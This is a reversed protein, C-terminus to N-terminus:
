SAAMYERSQGKHFGCAQVEELGRLDRGSRSNCQATTGLSAIYHIWFSPVFLVDGPTLLVETGTMDAFDPHAELDPNAWNVASHRASPDGTPRLYAHQCEQPPAMIWRRTGGVAVVFNRHGDYHAEAVVGEMGFRCHIGRANQQDERHFLDPSDAGFVTMDEAVMAHDPDSVRFYYHPMGRRAEVPTTGDTSATEAVAALRSAIADRWRTYSWQETHTPPEYGAERLEAAQRKGGLSWYLFHNTKSVEVRMESGGLKGQLYGPTNWKGVAADVAPVNYLVFPVQAESYRAAKARDAADAYDFRCLSAYHRAPVAADDPNWNRVMDVVRYETPYEPEEPCHPPGFARSGTREYVYAEQTARLRASAAVAGRTAATAAELAQTRADLYTETALKMGATAAHRKTEADGAFLAKAGDDADAASQAKSYIKATAAMRAHEGASLALGFHGPLVVDLLEDALGDYSVAHGRSGDAKLHELAMDCLFALHAACYEEDGVRAAASADKAGLIAQVGAPARKKHRVCVGGNGKDLNSVMVEVPNSHTDPNNPTPKISQTQL